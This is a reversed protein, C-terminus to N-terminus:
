PIPSLPTAGLRLLDSLSVFKNQPLKKLECTAYGNSQVEFIISEGNRTSVMHRTVGGFNMGVTNEESSYAPDVSDDGRHASVINLSPRGMADFIEKTYGTTHGHHSTIFFDTGAIANRFDDRQLLTLWGEKELDAGFTFKVGAYEIIVPISSNNVFNAENISKACEPVLYITDILKMGWNPYTEPYRYTQQWSSYNDLNKYKDRAGPDKIEEWDYVQRRIIGPPLYSILNQIDTLHDDHPHTLIFKTLSHGNYSFSFGLEHDKIYKIPSFRDTSGCDILLSYGSPSNIFACFGQEVNFIIVKMSFM